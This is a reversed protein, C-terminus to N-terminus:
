GTEFALVRVIGGVCCHRIEDWKPITAIATSPVFPRYGFLLRPALVLVVLVLYLRISQCDPRPKERHPKGMTTSLRPLRIVPVTPINRPEVM